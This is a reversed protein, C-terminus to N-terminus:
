FGGDNKGGIFFFQEPRAAAYGGNYYRSVWADPVNLLNNKVISYAHQFPSEVAIGIIYQEEAHIQYAELYLEKREAYPLQRAEEHIEYMRLLGADTPKRGSRGGTVAWAQIKPGWHHDPLVAIRGGAFGSPGVFHQLNGQLTASWVELAPIVPKMNIGTVAEVQKATAEVVAPGIVDAPTVWDVELRGGGDARLRFGDADRKDLGLADLMENARDVDQITYLNRSAEADEYWPNNPAFSINGPKGFGFYFQDIYGQKDISLSVAIRFDRSRLLRKIEPDADFDMNAAVVSFMASTPTLGRYNGKEANKQFLSYKEFYTGTALHFDAEGALVKLNIAEADEGCSYALRDVYPLQNGEPDVAWYYPNREYVAAGATNDAIMWASMVPSEHLAGKARFLQQWEDFGADEVMKDLEAKDAYDAHFQKLFHAPMYTSYAGGRWATTSYGWWVVEVFDGPFNPAPDVFEYRVTNDDVKVLDGVGRHAAIGGNGGIGSLAGDRKNPNLDTNQAVDRVAFVFDDAGFPAGDSWKLGQRLHLTWSKFDSSSEWSEALWPIVTFDDLDTAIVQDHLIELSDGKSACRDVLRWTGGYDGIREGVRIVLPDKPLREEVPPLNGQAVLDALMPAENFKNPLPGDWVFSAPTVGNVSPDMPAKMMVEVEKIVEKEVEVIKEVEVEKIVEKEVEVIKEVEVEKIVEKECALAFAIIVLLGLSVVLRKGSMM